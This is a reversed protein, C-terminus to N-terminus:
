GDTPKVRTPKKSENDSFNEDSNGSAEDQADSLDQLTTPETSLMSKADYNLPLMGAPVLVEDGGQVPKYDMAARAENITLIGAQVDARNTARMTERRLSLAPLNDINLCIDIDLDYHTSLWWSIEDLMNGALPLVTDEYFSMKAADVNNFTSGEEQGLLQAPYNFALCIDRATSNKGNLWDMDVPSIGLQQFVMDYNFIPIKGANDAGAYKANFKDGIDDIQKQTLMPANDGRDKMSILGPPKANNQLLKKNWTQSENHQDISMAAVAMPSLGYLDNLPNTNKIHLIDSMGTLPDIPYETMQGLSYLFMYPEWYIDAMITVRDPRLVRMEMIRGTYVKTGRIYTNGSIMRHLIAMHMFEKYSQLANPRKLLKNIPGNEVETGNIKIIYPISAVSEAISNVCHYAVVNKNYGEAAYSVYGSGLWRAGGWDLFQAFANSDKRKLGSFIKLFNDFM